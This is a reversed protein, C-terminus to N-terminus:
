EIRVHLTYDRTLMKDMAGFFSLEMGLVRIKCGDM